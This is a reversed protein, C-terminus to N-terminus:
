QLATALATWCTAISMFIAYAIAVGQPVVDKETAGTGTRKYVLWVVIPYMLSFVFAGIILGKAREKGDKREEQALYVDVRLQAAEVRRKAAESAKDKPEADVGEAVNRPTSAELKTAESELRRAQEKKADDLDKFVQVDPAHWEFFGSQNVSYGLVLFYIVTGWTLVKIITERRFKLKEDM